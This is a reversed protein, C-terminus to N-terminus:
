CLTLLTSARAAQAGGTTPVTSGDPFPQVYVGHQGSENSSYAIFRGEPSLKVGSLPRCFAPRLSLGPDVQSVLVVIM